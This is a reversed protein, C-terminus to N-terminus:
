IASTLWSSSVGSIILYKSWSSVQRLRPNMQLHTHYFWISFLTASIALMIINLVTLTAMTFPRLPRKPTRPKHEHAGRELLGHSEDGSDSSAEISGAPEAQIEKYESNHEM